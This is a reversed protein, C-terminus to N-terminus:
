KKKDKSLKISETQRLPGMSSMRSCAAKFVKKMKSLYEKETKCDKMDLAAYASSLCEMGSGFFMPLASHKYTSLNARYVTEKESDENFIAFDITKIHDSTAIIVSGDGKVKNLHEQEFNGELILTECSDILHAEGCNTIITEEDLKRIKDDTDSYIWGHDNGTLRGDAFVFVTDMFKDIVIGTM